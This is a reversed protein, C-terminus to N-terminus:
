PGAARTWRALRLTEERFRRLAALEFSNEIEVEDRYLLRGRSIIEYLLGPAAIRLDVLDLRDTALTQSIDAYFPRFRFGPGPLYALDIDTPPQEKGTVTQGASGFLYALRVGHRALLPALLDLREAWDEPLPPKDRYKEKVSM